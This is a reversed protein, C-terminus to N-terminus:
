HKAAKSCGGGSKVGFNKSLYKLVQQQDDPEIELGREVMQDLTNAWWKPDQRQKTIMKLDHCQTCKAEIKAKAPGPPLEPGLAWAGVAAMWVVVFV